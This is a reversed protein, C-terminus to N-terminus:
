RLPRRMILTAATGEDIVAATVPDLSRWRYQHHRVVTYGLAGYFTVAIADDVDVDLSMQDAGRRRGLEEATRVLTRGIGQRQVEIAVHLGYLWPNPIAAM